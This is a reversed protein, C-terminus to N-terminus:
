PCHKGKDFRRTGWTESKLRPIPLNMLFLSISIPEAETWTPQQKLFSCIGGSRKAGTPIVFPLATSGNIDSGRCLSAELDASDWTEFALRPAGASENPFSFHQDVASGEADISISFGASREM